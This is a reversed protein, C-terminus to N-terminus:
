GNIWGLGSWTPEVQFRGSPSQKHGNKLPQLYLEQYMATQAHRDSLQM